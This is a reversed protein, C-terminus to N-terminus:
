MAGIHGTCVSLPCRAVLRSINQLVRGSAFRRTDLAVVKGRNSGNIGPLVQEGNVKLIPGGDGIVWASQLANVYEPLHLPLESNAFFDLDCGWVFLETDSVPVKASNGRHSISLKGHRHVSFLFPAHCEIWALESLEIM